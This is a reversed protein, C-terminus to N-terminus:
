SPVDYSVNAYQSVAPIEMRRRRVVMIIVVFIVLILFTLVSYFMWLVTEGTTKKGEEKDEKGETGDEGQTEGVDAGAVTSLVNFGVIYNPSFSVTGDGEVGDVPLSDFLLNVEESGELPVTVEMLVEIRDGPAVDYILNSDLLRAIEQGKLVSVEVRELKEDTNSLYFIVESKEGPEGTLPLNKSYLSSVTVSANVVGVFLVFMLFFSFLMLYSKCRM